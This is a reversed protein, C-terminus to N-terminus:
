LSVTVTTHPARSCGCPVRFQLHSRAPAVVVWRHVLLQRVARGPVAPRLDRLRRPPGVLLRPLVVTVAGGAGLNAKIRLDDVAFVVDGQPQGPAM